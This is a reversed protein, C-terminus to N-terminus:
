SWRKLDLKEIAELSKRSKKEKSVHKKQCLELSSTEDIDFLLGIKKGGTQRERHSSSITSM